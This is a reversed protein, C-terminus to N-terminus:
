INFRNFQADQAIGLRCALEIKGAKAGGYVAHSVSIRGM